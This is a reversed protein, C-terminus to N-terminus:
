EKRAKDTAGESRGIEKLKASLSIEDLARIPLATFLEIRRSLYRYADRFARAVEVESGRVAAPDAGGREALVLAEAVAGITVAVILQNALKALQGSGVPGVLRPTGMAKFVPELRRFTAADSGVMIALSGAAAAAGAFLIGRM